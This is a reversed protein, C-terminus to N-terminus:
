GQLLPGTDLPNRGATEPTTRPKCPTASQGTPEGKGACTGHEHSCLARTLSRASGPRMAAGSADKVRAAARRYDPAGRPLTEGPAPQPIRNHADGRGTTRGPLGSAANM